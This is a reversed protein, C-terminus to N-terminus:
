SELRAVLRRDRKESFPPQAAPLRRLRDAGFAVSVPKLGILRLREDVLAAMEQEFEFISPCRILRQFICGNRISPPPSPM